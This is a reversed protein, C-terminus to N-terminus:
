NPPKKDRGFYVGIWMMTMFLLPLAGTVSERGFFLDKISVATTIISCAIVIGTQTRNLRM